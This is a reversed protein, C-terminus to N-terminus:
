DSYKNILFKYVERKFIFISTIIKIFAPLSDWLMPGRTRLCMKSINSKFPVCKFFSIQRTNYHKHPEAVALLSLCSAPLLKAKYMILFQLTQLVCIDGQALLNLKIFLPKSASRFPSNTILRIARKQLSRLHVLHSQAACGWVICCYLLHPYILMHYLLLLLKPSLIYKVRNLAGIGRSIKNSVSSIQDKWTLHADIIVGLFKTSSVQKLLMGDISIQPTISYPKHGFFMFNTKSINLSLKNARFWLALKDLESNLTQILSDFNRCSYFLNTDDAFLIFHLLKSAAVIDNIYLIFLLPGLISGQPVGCSIVRASSIINDISVYQARNCLYSNFWDLNIGRIGYHHLKCLLVNHDLTDFAKSLNIFVGVAYDHNNAASAIKDYLTLLAMQTSHNKRFGFQSHTLINNHNLYDLLRLYMIKELLKSFCSLISIPRYNTIETKVGSKFVPCVKALKLANPFCGSAISSNIVLELAPSISSISAKVISMPISDYGSSSKSNFSLVISEIENQNTPSASFSNLFNGALYNNFKTSVPKIEAALNKGINVFFNNFATVQAGTDM